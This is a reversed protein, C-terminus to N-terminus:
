AAEVTGDRPTLFNPIAVEDREGAIARLASRHM